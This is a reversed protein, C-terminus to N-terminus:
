GLDVEGAPLLLVGEHDSGLGLEDPACIMGNSVTGRIRRQALKMGAAARNRASGLRDASGQHPQSGWM